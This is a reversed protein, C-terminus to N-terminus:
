NRKLGPNKEVGPLEIEGRLMLRLADKIRQLATPETEISAKRCLERFAETNLM